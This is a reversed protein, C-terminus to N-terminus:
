QAYKMQILDLFLRHRSRHWKVEIRYKSLDVSGVFHLELVPYRLVRYLRPQSQPRKGSVVDLSKLLILIVDLLLEVVRLDDLVDALIHYNLTIIINSKFNMILLHFEM